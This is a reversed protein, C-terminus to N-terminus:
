DTSPRRQRAAWRALKKQLARVTIGLAAATWTRNNGHRRLEQLVLLQEIRDLRQALPGCGNQDAELIAQDGTVTPSLHALDIAEGPEALAVAREIENRLERVNGPWTHSELCQLAAPTFGRVTKGARAACRALLQEAILRVDGDRERLPPLAIPFVNLRYFLDRRFTGREVEAHLDRNTAAVLRVDVAVARTGGVPRVKGDEVVRLVKTQMAPPMEGIEDLLITGGHAEEFLGRRDRLAGTFSGKVHGFLESELLGEPMAGCNVAVFKGGRRPGNYHIAAAALEKGTGTEGTLLVTATSQAAKEVLRFVARMATSEGVMNGLAYREGVERKLRRNEGELQDNAARLDTVLRENEAFLRRNAARLAYTEMARRGVAALDRNDWPKTVFQDVRGANIADLMTEVDAYATLTIRVVDPWREAVKALLETGTMGPMRQDAIVVGVERAALHGLAEDGSLAGLVPFDNEFIQGILTLVAPEDDVVLLAPRTAASADTV